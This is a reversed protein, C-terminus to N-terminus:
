INIPNEDTVGPVADYAGILLSLNAKPQDIMFFVNRGSKKRDLSTNAPKAVIEIREIREPVADACVLPAPVMEPVSVSGFPASM